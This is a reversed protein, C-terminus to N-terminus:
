RGGTALILLFLSAAAAIMFVAGAVSLSDGMGLKLKAGLIWAGFVFGFFVSILATM